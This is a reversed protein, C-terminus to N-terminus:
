HRRLAFRAIDRWLLPDVADPSLQDLLAALATRAVEFREGHGLQDAARVLLLRCRLLDEDDLAGTGIAHEALTWGREPDDECLALEARMSEAQASLKAPRAVLEAEVLDLIGAAAALDPETSRLALAVSALRVQNRYVPDGDFSELLDLAHQISREADPRDGLREKVQARVWWASIALRGPKLDTLERTLQDVSQEAESLRGTRALQGTLSVLARTRVHQGGASDDGDALEVAARLAKIADAPRGLRWLAQGRLVEVLADVTPGPSWSSRLREVTSLLADVDPQRTQLVARTWRISWAFLDSEAQDDLEGLLDRARGLDGDRFALTAECWTLAEDQAFGHGASGVLEIPDVDLVESLRAVVAPSPVRDGSELRSVYSMSVGPGALDKQALGRRQRVARLRAGFGDGARGTLPSSQPRGSTDNGEHM